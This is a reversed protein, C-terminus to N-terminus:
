LSKDVLKWFVKYDRWMKWQIVMPFICNSFWNLTHVQGRAESPRYSGGSSDGDAWVKAAQCGGGCDLISFIWFNSLTNRYLIGIFKQVHQLMEFIKPGSDSICCKSAKYKYKELVPITKGQFTEIRKNVAQPKDDFNERQDLRGRM